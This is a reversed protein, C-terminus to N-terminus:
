SLSLPCCRSAPGLGSSDWRSPKLCFTLSQGRGIGEFGQHTISHMSHHHATHRPRWRVSRCHSDVRGLTLATREERRKGRTGMKKREFRHDSVQEKKRDLYLSYRCSSSFFRSSHSARLRSLSSCSALPSSTPGSSGSGSASTSIPSQSRTLNRSHAIATM